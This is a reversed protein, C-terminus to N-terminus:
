YKTAILDDEQRHEQIRVIQWILNDPPMAGLNITLSGDQYDFDLETRNDVLEIRNPAQAMGTVIVQAPVPRNVFLYKQYHMHRNQLVFGHNAVLSSPESENFAHGFRHMWRNVQDLLAQASESLTGDESVSLNIITKQGDKRQHVMHDIVKDATLEEGQDEDVLAIVYKNCAQKFDARRDNTAVARAGINRATKVLLDVDVDKGTKLKFNLIVAFDPNM